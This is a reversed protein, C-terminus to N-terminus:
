KSIKAMLLNWIQEYPLIEPLVNVDEVVVDRKQMKKLLPEALAKTRVPHLSSKAMVELLRIMCQSRYTDDDKLYRYKFQGLSEIIDFIRNIQKKELLYFIEVIRYPLNLSEKDKLLDKNRRLFQNSSILSASKPRTFKVGLEEANLQLLSLRLEWLARESEMTKLMKQEYVIEVIDVCDQYRGLLTHCVFNYNQIVFWMRGGFTLWSLLGNAQDIAEQTKGLFLLALLRNFQISFDVSHDDLGRRKFYDEAENMLDLMESFRKQVLLPYARLDYGYSHIDFSNTLSQLYELDKACDNLRIIHKKTPNLKEQMYIHSMEGNILLVKNYQELNFIAKMYIDKIKAMEKPDPFLFAHYAYLDKAFLFTQIIFDYKIALKLNKELVEGYTKTLRTFKLAMASTYSKYLMIFVDSRKQNSFRENIHYFLEDLVRRNFRSKLKRFNTQNKDDGYVEQALILDNLGDNNELARALSISRPGIFIDAPDKIFSGKILESISIM